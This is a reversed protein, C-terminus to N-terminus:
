SLEEFFDPLIKKIIEVERTNAGISKLWEALESTKFRKNKSTRSNRWQPYEKIAKAILRNLYNWYQSKTLDIEDLCEFEGNFKKLHKDRQKPDLWLSSHNIIQKHAIDIFNGKYICTINSKELLIIIKRPHESQITQLQSRTLKIYQNEKTNFIYFDISGKIGLQIFKNALIENVDLPELNDM